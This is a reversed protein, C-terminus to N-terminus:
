DEETFTRVAFDIMLVIYSKGLGFVLGIIIMISQLQVAILVALAPWAFRTFIGIGRPSVGKALTEGFSKIKLHLAWFNCFSIVTGLLLGNFVNPYSSFGAGLV